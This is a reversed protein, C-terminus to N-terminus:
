PKNIKIEGPHYKRTATAIVEPWAFIEKKLRQESILKAQDFYHPSAPDGSAGFSVASAGTVTEGFEYVALYSAGVM